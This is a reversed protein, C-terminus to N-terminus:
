RSLAEEVIWQCLQPFSMGLYRAQEPVLSLPTMGPQTNIELLYLRGPEGATDDYRFDARTVGRCGLARHAKLAAAKAEAEIETHVKAPITHETMGDTYKAKYDYFGVKPQLETVALPRDGLITVTLERGPIFSEILAEEGFRWTEATLPDRNDGESVIAVGVSSGESIPKLVYPRPLPEGQRFDERTVVRGDPCTIGKATFFQKAIVKDMALASALVGSHTYPLDLFELMGQICGDESFRGHLANFVLDPRPDIAAMLQRLDRSIDLERVQHGLERLGQACAAGSVLSVDREASPGGKLLLIDLPKTM